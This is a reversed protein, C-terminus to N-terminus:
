SEPLASIDDAECSLVEGLDFRDRQAFMLLALKLAAEVDAATAADRELGDIERLVVRLLM